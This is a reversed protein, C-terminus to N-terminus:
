KVSESGAEKSEPEFAKYAYLGFLENMLKSAQVAVSELQDYRISGIALNHVADNRATNFKEIRKFLSEEIKNKEKAKTALWIVSDGNRAERIEKGLVTRLQTEIYMHALVIAELWYKDDFARNFYLVLGSVPFARAMMENFSRNDM